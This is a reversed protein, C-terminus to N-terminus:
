TDRERDRSRVEDKLADLEKRLDSIERFQRKAIMLLYKVVDDEGNRYHYYTKESATPFLEDRGFAARALAINSDNYAALVEKRMKDPLFSSGKRSLEPLKLGKVLAEFEGPLVEGYQVSNYKGVLYSQAPGLSSHVRDYRSFETRWELGLYELFYRVIGGNRQIDDYDALVISGGVAASWKNYLDFYNLLHLVSRYYDEVSVIRRGTHTKHKLGWQRYASELWDDQRRVVLIVKIEDFSTQTERFRAIEGLVDTLNHCMSLSENSWVVHAGEGLTAGFADLAELGSRLRATNKIEGQNEFAFGTGIRDLRVGTYYVSNEELWASEWDMFRQVASTGTKGLGIHLTLKM